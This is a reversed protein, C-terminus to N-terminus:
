SQGSKSRLHQALSALAEDDARRWDHSSVYGEYTEFYKDVRSGIKKFKSDNGTGHLPFLKAHLHDVGYGEFVLATRGVGKLSADLIRAVKKSAIVLGALVEDSQSFAYSSCHTKPVVVAAGLTNPFISLFAAHKEDQWFITSPARGALIDCFICTEM